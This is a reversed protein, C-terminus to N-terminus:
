IYNKLESSDSNSKKLHPIVIAHKSNDPFVRTSLSANFLTAVFPALLSRYKKILWTPVPDLKRTKNAAESILKEVEDVTVPAFSSLHEVDM